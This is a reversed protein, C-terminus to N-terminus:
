SWSNSEYSPRYTATSSPLTMAAVSDLSASSDFTWPRTPTYMVWTAFRPRIQIRQHVVNLENAVISCPELEDGRHDDLPFEERPRRYRGLRENLKLHYEIRSGIRSLDALRDSPLYSNVHDM